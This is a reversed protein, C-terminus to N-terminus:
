LKIGDLDHVFGSDDDDLLAMSSARRSKGRLVVSLVGASAAVFGVRANATQVISVM